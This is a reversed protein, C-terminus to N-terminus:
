WVLGIARYAGSNMEEQVLWGYEEEQGKRRCLELTVQRQMTL